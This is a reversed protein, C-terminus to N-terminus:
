DRHPMLNLQSRRSVDLGLLAALVVRNHPQSRDLGIARGVRAVPGTVLASILGDSIGCLAAVM